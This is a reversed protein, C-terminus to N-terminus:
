TNNGLTLTQNNTTALTGSATLFTGGTVGASLSATPIGSGSVNTVAFKAASTSIAGLLFDDSINVPAIAGLNRQWFNTLAFGGSTIAGSCNLDGSANVVTCGT